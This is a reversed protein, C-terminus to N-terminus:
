TDTKTGTDYKRIVRATNYLRFNPFTIGGARNNKRLTIQSNSTKQTEMCIKFHNTRTRYFIDKINQYPNHQRPLRNM